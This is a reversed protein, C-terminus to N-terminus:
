SSSSSILLISLLRNIFILSALLCLLLHPRSLPWASTSTPCQLSSASARLLQSADPFSGWTGWSRIKWGWSAPEKGSMTLEICRVEQALRLDGRNRPDLSGPFCLQSVQIFFTCVLFQSFIPIKWWIEAPKQPVTFWLRPAFFISTPFKAQTKYFHAPPLNWWMTFKSEMNHLIRPYFFWVLPPPWLLWSHIRFFM